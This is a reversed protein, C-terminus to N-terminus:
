YRQNSLTAVADSLPLKIRIKHGIRAPLCRTGRRRAAWLVGLVRLVALLAVEVAVALGRYAPLRRLAVPQALRASQSCSAVRLKARDFMCLVMVHQLASGAM